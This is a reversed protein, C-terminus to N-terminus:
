NDEDEINLSNVSDDEFMTQMPQPMQLTKESGQARPSSMNKREFPPVLDDLSKTCAIKLCLRHLIERGHPLFMFMPMEPKIRINYAFLEHHQTEVIIPKFYPAFNVRKEHHEDLYDGVGWM